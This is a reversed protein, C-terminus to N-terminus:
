KEQILENQTKRFLKFREVLPAIFTSGSRMLYEKQIYHKECMKSMNLM